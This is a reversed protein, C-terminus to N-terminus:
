KREKHRLKKKGWKPRMKIEKGKKEKMENERVDKEKIKMKWKEGREKKEGKM